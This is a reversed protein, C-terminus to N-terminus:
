FIVQPKAENLAEELAKRFCERNPFGGQSYQAETFEQEYERKKRMVKMKEQDEKKRLAKMKFVYRIRMIGEHVRLFCLIHDLTPFEKSEPPVMKVETFHEKPKEYKKQFRFQTEFTQLFNQLIPFLKVIIDIRGQTLLESEGYFLFPSGKKDTIQYDTALELCWQYQKEEQPAFAVNKDIVLSQMEGWADEEKAKIKKFIGYAVGVQLLECNVATNEINKVRLTGNIEGGQEWEEGEAVLHYELPRKFFFGKM